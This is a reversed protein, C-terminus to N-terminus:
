GRGARRAFTLVGATAALAAGAAGLAARATCRSGPSRVTASRGTTSTGTPVRTARSRTGYTTASRPGRHPTPRSGTTAPVRWTATSSAPPWGTAVSPASPARGGVDPVPSPRGPVGGAPPTRAAPEAGLQGASHEDGAPAGDRGANRQARAAAPHDRERHLRRGRAQRRLVGGAPSHGSLGPGVRDPRDRRRRAAEHAAARGPHRQGPRPLHHPHGARVGGSVGRHVARLPRGDRKNVWVTM